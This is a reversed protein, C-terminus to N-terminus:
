FLFLVQLFIQISVYRNPPCLCLFQRAEFISLCTAASHCPQLLCPDNPESCDKKIQGDKCVCIYNYPQINICQTAPQVCPRSACSDVIYRNAQALKAATYEDLQYREEQGRDPRAIAYLSIGLSVIAIGATIVSFIYKKPKKRQLTHNDGLFM